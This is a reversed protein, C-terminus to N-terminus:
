ITATVQEGWPCIPIYGDMFIGGLNGTLAAGHGIGKIKLYVFEGLRSPKGAGGIKGVVVSRKRGAGTIVELFAMEGALMDVTKGHLKANYFDHLSRGGIVVLFRQIFNTSGGINITIRGLTGPLFVSHTCLKFGDANVVFILGCHEFAGGLSWICCSPIGAGASIKIDSFEGALVDVSKSVFNRGVFLFGAGAIIGFRSCVTRKVIYYVRM